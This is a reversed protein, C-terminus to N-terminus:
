SIGIISTESCDAKAEDIDNSCQAAYSYHNTLILNIYSERLTLGISGIHRNEGNSNLLLDM